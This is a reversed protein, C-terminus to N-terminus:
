SGHADWDLSVFAIAVERVGQICRLEDLLERAGRDDDTEAVVPLRDGVAEGLALRPDDHLAALAREPSASDLTLVLGSISM